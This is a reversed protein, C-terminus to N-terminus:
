QLRGSLEIRKRKEKRKKEKRKKEARKGIVECRANRKGKTGQGRWESQYRMWRGLGCQGPRTEKVQQRDLSFMSSPSTSAKFTGVEGERREGDGYYWKGIGQEAQGM